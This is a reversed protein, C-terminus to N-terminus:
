KSQEIFYLAYISLENNQALYFFPPPDIQPKHEQAISARLHKSVQTTAM